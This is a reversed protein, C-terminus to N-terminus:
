HDVLARRLASATYGGFIPDTGAKPDSQALERERASCTKCQYFAGNWHVVDHPQYTLCVDCQELRDCPPDCRRCTTTTSSM